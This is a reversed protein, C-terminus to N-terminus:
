QISRNPTQRDNASHWEDLSYSGYKEEMASLLEGLIKRSGEVEKRYSCGGRLNIFAVQLKGPAPSYVQAWISFAQYQYSYESPNPYAAHFGLAQMQAIAAETLEESPIGAKDFAVVYISNSSSSFGFLMWVSLLIILARITM